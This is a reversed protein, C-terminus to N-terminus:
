IRNRWVWNLIKTLGGAKATITLVRDENLQPRAEDIATLGDEVTMITQGVRSCTIRATTIRQCAVKLTPVTALGTNDLAAANRMQGANLNQLVDGDTVALIGLPDAAHTATVAHTAVAVTM